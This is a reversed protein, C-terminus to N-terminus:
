PVPNPDNRGSFSGSSSSSSSSSRSSTAVVNPRLPSVPSGLDLERFDPKNDNDNRKHDYKLSKKFRDALTSLGGESNIKGSHSM